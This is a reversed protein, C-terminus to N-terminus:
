ARHLPVSEIVRRRLATTFVPVTVAPSAPLIAEADITFPASAMRMAPCNHAGVEVGVGVMVTPGVTVGVDVRVGIGVGVGPGGGPGSVGM